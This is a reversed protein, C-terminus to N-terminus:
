DGVRFNKNFLLHNSLLMIFAFGLVMYLFYEVVFPPPTGISDGAYIFEQTCLRDSSDIGSGCFNSNYFQNFCKSEISSNYRNMPCSSYFYNNGSFNNLSLAYIGLGVCCLVFVWVFPKWLRYTQGKMEFNKFLDM